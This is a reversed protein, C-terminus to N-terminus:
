PKDQFFEIIKPILMKHIFEEEMFHTGEYLAYSGEGFHKRWTRISVVGSRRYHDRTGFFAFYCMSGGDVASATLAEERHRRYKKLTDPIFHLPQRDGERPRYIRDFVKTMGPIRTLVSFISFYFSANLAPSVFLHPIGSIKLTHLSGLSEGIVLEPKLESVWSSIQAAAIEPDFDYTRCIVAIGRPALADRLISPIRSDSGGGMGHIYLVNVMVM